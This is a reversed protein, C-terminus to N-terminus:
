AGQYELLEGILENISRGKIGVPDAIERLGSIGDKDAIAELQERTYSIVQSDATVTDLKAADSAATVDDVDKANKTLANDLTMSHAKMHEMGAGVQDGEMSEVRMSAGIISVEQTTLERESVGDKFSISYLMGTYNSLAPEVIRVKM